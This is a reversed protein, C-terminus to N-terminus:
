LLGTLSGGDSRSFEAILSYSLLHARKQDLTWSQQYSLGDFYEYSLTYNAYMAATDLKGLQIVVCTYMMPRPTGPMSYLSGFEDRVGLEMELSVKVKQWVSLNVYVGGIPEVVLPRLLAVLSTPKTPSSTNYLGNYLNQVAAYRVNFLNRCSSEVQAVSGLKQRNSNLLNVYDTDRTALMAQYLTANVAFIKQM